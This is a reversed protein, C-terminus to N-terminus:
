DTDFPTSVRVPLPVGPSFTMRCFPKGASRCSIAASPLQVIVYVSGSLAACVYSSSWCFPRFASPLRVTSTGACCVAKATLECVTDPRVRVTVPVPVGPRVTCTSGAFPVTWRLATPLSPVHFSM